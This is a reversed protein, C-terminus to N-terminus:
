DKGFFVNYATKGMILDSDEQNFLPNDKIENLSNRYGERFSVPPFDSGWMMRDSGFADLTMKLLPHNLGFAPKRSLVDPKQM